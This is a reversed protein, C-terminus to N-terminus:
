RYGRMMLDNQFEVVQRTDSRSLKYIAENPKARMCKDISPARNIYSLQLIFGM